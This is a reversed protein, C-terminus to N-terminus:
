HPHEHHHHQYAGTEPEFARMEHTVTLGLKKIMEDLVHDVLYIIYNEEIQLPIHRNGLHYSAKTLLLKDSSSAISIKEQAAIVKVVLGEDTRLCDGGRLVLGRPLMLGAEEGNDLTTKLRAKQRMDFALTLTMTFDNTNKVRETFLLVISNM